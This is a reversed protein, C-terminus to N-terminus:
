RMWALVFVFIVGLMVIEEAGKFFSAMVAPIDRGFLGVLIHSLAVVGLVSVIVSPLGPDKM